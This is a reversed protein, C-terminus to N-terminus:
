HHFLCYLVNSICNIFLLSMKDIIPFFFAGVVRADKNKRLRLSIYRCVYMNIPILIQCIKDPHVNKHLTWKDMDWNKDGIQPKTNIMASTGLAFSIRTMEQM